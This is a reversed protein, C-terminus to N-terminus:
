MTLRDIRRAVPPHQDLPKAWRRTSPPNLVTLARALDPGAGLTRAYRDAAHESARSVAADLLPTVVFAAVLGIGMAVSLWQEDRILRTLAIGTAILALLGTVPGPRQNGCLRISLRLLLGFVLRGPAALWTAGLRCHSARTAHHGLEHVLVAALLDAPLRGALFSELAGDTVAVSRRGAVCANPQRGHSLYWDFRDSPLGCRGLAAARAPALLQEQRGTLPRFRYATRVAAREGSRTSLLLPASVWPLWVLLGWAGLGATLVLMLLTGGAVAPLAALARCAGYRGRHRVHHRVHDHVVDRDVEVPHTAAATTM